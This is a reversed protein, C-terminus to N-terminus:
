GGVGTPARFEARQIVGRGEPDVPEIMAVDIQYYLALRMSRGIASWVQYREDMSPSYLRVALHDVLRLVEPPLHEPGLRPQGHLAELVRTLRRQCEAHDVSHHAMLYHLRLGLPPRVYGEDTHVLSQNRYHPHEEVAYLFVNLKDAVPDGDGDLSRIAIWSGGPPNLDATRVGIYAVLAETVDFLM